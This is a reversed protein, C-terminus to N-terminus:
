DNPSAIGSRYREPGKKRQLGRRSNIDTKRNSKKSAQGMFKRVEKNKLDSM